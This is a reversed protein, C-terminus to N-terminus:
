VRRMDLVTDSLLLCSAALITGYRISHLSDLSVQVVICGNVGRVAYCM